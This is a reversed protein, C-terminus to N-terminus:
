QTGRLSGALTCLTFTASMLLMGVSFVVLGEAMSIGFLLEPSEACSARVEFIAPLWKDIAFWEPMDLFYSCSGLINGRETQLLEWSTSLLGAMMGTIFLHAIPIVYKIHQLFYVLTALVALGIVWLRVHICLICPEFGGVYQYLLATTEMLISIAILMLWYCRYNAFANIIQLINKLM